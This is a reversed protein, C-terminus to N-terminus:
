INGNAIGGYYNFQCPWAAYRQYVDIAIRNMVVNLQDRAESNYHCKRGNMFNIANVAFHIHLHRESDDHVAVVVQYGRQFFYYAQMNAISCVLAYNKNLVAQEFDSFSFVFHYMRRNTVRHAKQVCEFQRITEGIDACSAAGFARYSVLNDRYKEGERTRTIYRILKDAADENSFNGKRATRVIGHSDRYTKDKEGMMRLEAM